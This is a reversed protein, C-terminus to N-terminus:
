AINMYRHLVRQGEAGNIHLMKNSIPHSIYNFINGGGRQKKSSGKKKSKKSKKYSKKSSKKSSKKYTKMSSKTSDGKVGPKKETDKGISKAKKDFKEGLGLENAIGMVDDVMGEYDEGDGVEEALPTEELPAEIDSDDLTTEITDNITDIDDIDDRMSEIENSVEASTNVGSDIIDQSTNMINKLKGPIVNLGILGTRLNQNLMDITIENVKCIGNTIFKSVHCIIGDTQKKNLKGIKKINSQLEVATSQIDSSKTMSKVLSKAENVVTKIQKFDVLGFGGKYGCLGNTLKKSVNCPFPSALINRIIDSYHSMSDVHNQTIDILHDKIQKSLVMVPITFADDSKGGILNPYLM